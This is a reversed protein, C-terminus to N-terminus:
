SICMYSKLTAKFRRLNGAELVYRPLSNWERGVLVMGDGPYRIIKAPIYICRVFKLIM